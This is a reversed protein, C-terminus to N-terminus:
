RLPLEGGEQISFRFLAGLQQFLQGTGFNVALNGRLDKFLM